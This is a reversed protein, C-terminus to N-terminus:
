EHIVIDRINWVIDIDLHSLSNKNYYFNKSNDDNITCIWNCHDKIRYYDEYYNGDLEIPQYSTGYKVFTVNEISIEEKNKINLFEIPVDPADKSAYLYNISSKDKKSYYNVVLYESQEYNNFEFFTYIKMHKGKLLSVKEGIQVQSSVEEVLVYDKDKYYFFDVYDKLFYDATFRAEGFEKTSSCSTLPFIMLLLFFNKKMNLKILDCRNTRRM